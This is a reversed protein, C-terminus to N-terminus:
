LHQKIVISEGCNTPCAHLFNSEISKFSIPSATTAALVIFAFNSNENKYTNNVDSNSYPKSRETRQPNTQSINHFQYNTKNQVEKEEGM